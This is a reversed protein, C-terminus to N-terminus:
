KIKKEINTIKQELAKIDEKTVLGLNSLAKNIEKSIRDSVEEREKKGKEILKKIANDTERTTKTTKKGKKVISDVAKQTEERVATLAGVVLYPIDKPEM